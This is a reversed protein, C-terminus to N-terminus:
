RGGPIATQPAAPAKGPDSGPTLAADPGSNTGIPVDILWCGISQGGAGWCELVGRLPETSGPKLTLTISSEKTECTEIPNPVSAGSEHPYFAIRAPDREMLGVGKAEDFTSGVISRVRPTLTVRGAGTWEVSVRDSAAKPVRELAQTILLSEASLAADAAVPISISVDAERPVCGEECELWGVHVGISLTQGPVVTKPSVLRALIVVRGEYVHDLINGPLIHRHPTPWQLEGITFGEPLTWEVSPAYGSDNQGPWYIHWGPQIDFEVGLWTETGPAISGHDAILRVSAAPRDVDEDGGQARAVDTVLIPILTALISRATPPM